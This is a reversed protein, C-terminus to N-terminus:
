GELKKKFKAKECMVFYNRYFFFVIEVRTDAVLLQRFKEAM